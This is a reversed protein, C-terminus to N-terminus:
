DADRGTQDVSADPVDVEKGEESRLYDINCRVTIERGMLVSMEKSAKQRAELMATINLKLMEDNGTAEDTIMREKKDQSKRIGIEEFFAQMIKTRSVILKEIEGSSRKQLDTVKISDLGANVITEFEGEYLRDQYLKVKDAQKGSIAEYLVSQRDNVMECCISIDCHALLTAYRQIKPLLPMKLNNNPIIIANEGIKCRGTHLPTAYTVHTFIDYYDTIGERSVDFPAIWRDAGIQVVTAYGHSFASLEIEHQPISEPLGDWTFLRICYEMLTNCWYFYSPELTMGKKINKKRWLRFNKLFYNM